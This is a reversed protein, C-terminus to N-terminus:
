AKNECLTKLRDLAKPWVDEFYSVYDKITNIQIKLFSANNQSNFYYNELAGTWPDDDPGSNLTGSGTIMELHMISLFSGPINEVIKSSMGALQGDKDTGLFQIASGKEWTGIYHSSPNFIRTWDSYGKKSLMTEYVHEVPSQIHIEFELVQLAQLKEVQIKFRNLIAQWGARQMEPDHINEAEFKEQVLTEHGSITFRISVKRGDGITYEMEAFPIIKTYCGTFDFSVSGNRAAMRYLFKGGVRLENEAYSTHWDDSAANWLCIYEPTTWVKWVSEIPAAISCEIQIQKPM